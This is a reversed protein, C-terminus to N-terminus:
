ADQTAKSGALSYFFLAVPRYITHASTTFPLLLMLELAVAVHFLFMWYGWAPPSSMCLTVEIVFGTVGTIMLLILLLWDSGTSISSARNYKTARNVLFWGVGYILMLGAITGILRSPYWIPIATGTEKVGIVALGWDLGTAVMLGLFGWIAM